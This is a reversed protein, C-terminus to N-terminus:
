LKILKGSSTYETKISYPDGTYYVNGIDNIKAELEKSVNIYCDNTGYNRLYTYDSKLNGAQITGTGFQYVFSIITNGRINITPPGTHIKIRSEYAKITLDITGAGDHVDIHFLNNKLTDTCYINGYGYYKITDLKIISVYANITKDYRRVWNCKNKNSIHLFNNKVETNILGLLNKGAEIIIKNVTDQKIILNINDELSINSFNGVFREQLTINGTSKVCDLMNERECSIFLFCFLCYVIFNKM